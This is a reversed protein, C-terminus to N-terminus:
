TKISCLIYGLFMGVSMCLSIFSFVLSINFMTFTPTPPRRDLSDKVEAALVMFEEHLRIIHQREEYATMSNQINEWEDLEAFNQKTIMHLEQCGRPM